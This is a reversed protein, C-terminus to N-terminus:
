PTPFRSIRPEVIVKGKVYPLTQNDIILFMDYQYEGAELEELRRITITSGVIELGDEDTLELIVTTGPGRRVQMLATAGSLDTPDGDETFELVWAYTAGEYTEIDYVGPTM